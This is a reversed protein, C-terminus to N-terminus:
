PSDPDRDAELADAPSDVFSMLEAVHTLDLLRQVQEGGNILFFRRGAEHAHQQGRVLVHLGSSDMFTLRRLDLVIVETDSGIARDLEEQLAPSSVLDLEGIATLTIGRGTTHTEVRFDSQL